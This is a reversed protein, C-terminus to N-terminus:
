LGDNPKRKIRIKHRMKVSFIIEFLTHGFSILEVDSRIIEFIKSQNSVEDLIKVEPKWSECEDHIDNRQNWRDIDKQLNGLM